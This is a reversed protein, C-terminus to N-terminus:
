LYNFMELNLTFAKLETCLETNQFPSWVWQWVKFSFLRNKIGSKQGKRCIHISGSRVVLGDHGVQDGVIVVEGFQLGLFSSSPPEVFHTSVQVGASYRTSCTIVM